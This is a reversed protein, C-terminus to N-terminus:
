IRTVVETLTFRSKAETAYKDDPARYGLACIVVSALHKEPLRLIEDFSEKSFGEMPGADIKQLACAELLMGLAIYTQRASWQALTEPTANAIFGAIMEQMGSLDQATIGRAAATSEVFANVLQENIDTRRCFVILHSAEIVQPQNWAAAHLQKRIETNEIVLFKWPQLGFSSPSLRLVELLGVLTEETIKKDSAFKKTAYRWNLAALIQNQM